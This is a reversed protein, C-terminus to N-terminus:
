FRGGVSGLSTPSLISADAPQCQSDFQSELGSCLWLGADSVCGLSQTQDAPSPLGLFNTRVSCVLSVVLPHCRMGLCGWCFYDLGALFHRATTRSVVLPHCRTARQGPSHLASGRCSSGLSAVLIFSSNPHCPASGCFVSGLSPM